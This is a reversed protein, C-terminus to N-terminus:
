MRRWGALALIGSALITLVNPEPVVAFSIRYVETDAATVNQFTYGAATTLGNYANLEAFNFNVVGNQPTRLDNNGAVLFAANAPDTAESGADWIDGATQVISNILLNGSADLLQFGTPSDNGLFHDNSPVVMSGFTFFRNISPDVTFVATGTAGPTLPGAPNPAVTGLTANPEAAMFAPFWTSGSGGEAITVIPAQAISPSGLLFAEQGNNFSDFTGSNFGLRLPAFSVSNAPAINEVTVRIQVTQSFALTGTFAGVVAACSALLNSLRM